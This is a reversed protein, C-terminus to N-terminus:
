YYCLCFSFLCHCFMVVNKAVVLSIVAFLPFGQKVSNYM